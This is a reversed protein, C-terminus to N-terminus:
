IHILSLVYVCGCLCGWEGSLWTMWWCWLGQGVELLERQTKELDALKQAHQARLSELENQELKEMEYTHKLESKNKSVSSCLRQLVEEEQQVEEQLKHLESRKTKITAVLDGKQLDLQELEEQDEQPGCLLCASNPVDQVELKQTQLIHTHTHTHM